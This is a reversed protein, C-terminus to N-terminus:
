FFGIEEKNFEIEAVSGKFDYRPSIKKIAQNVSNDIEQLDPTSVVYFSNTGAM